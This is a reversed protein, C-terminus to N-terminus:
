LEEPEFPTAAIVESRLIMCGCPEYLTSCYVTRTYENCPYGPILDGQQHVVRMGTGGCTLCNTSSTSFFM